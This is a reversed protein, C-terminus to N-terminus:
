RVPIRDAERDELRRQLARIQAEMQRREGDLFRVWEDTNQRLSSVDQRALRFSEKVKKQFPTTIM